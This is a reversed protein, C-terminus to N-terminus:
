CEKSGKLDKLACPTACDVCANKETKAKPAFLKYIKYIAVAGATAIILYVLIAQIDM